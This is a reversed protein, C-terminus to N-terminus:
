MVEVLSKLFIYLMSARVRGENTHVEEEEEEEHEAHRSRLRGRSGQMGGRGGGGDAGARTSLESGM